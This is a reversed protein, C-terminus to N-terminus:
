RLVDLARQFSDIRAGIASLGGNVTRTINVIDANDAPANLGRSNWYWAATDFAYQPQAMLDPHDVFDVGLASSVAEYNARGTVQIAGRGKFRTGDGPENNGLDRRGEYARGSAYEEFTKFHDSEVMVQALFAAKRVPTVADADALADSLPGALEHAREPSLEPAVTRLQEPSISPGAVAPVTLFTPMVEPNKGPLAGLLRWWDTDSGPAPVTPLVMAEASVAPIVLSSTFLGAGLLAAVGLNRLRTTRM